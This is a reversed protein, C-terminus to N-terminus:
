STVIRASCTKGSSMQKVTLLFTDKGATNKRFRDVSIDGERDATRVAKYIVTGEHRISMRWKSGARADDIDAEVEFGGNERDVGLEYEVGACRGSRDIGAQAPSAVLLSAPVVLATAIGATALAYKKNM